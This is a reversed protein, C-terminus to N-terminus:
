EDEGNTLTQALTLSRTMASGMSSQATNEIIGQLTDSWCVQHSKSAQEPVVCPIATSFDSPQIALTSPKQSLCLEEKSLFCSQCFPVTTERREIKRPLSEKEAESILNCSTAEVYHRGHRHHYREILIHQNPSTHYSDCGECHTRTTLLTISLAKWDLLQYIDRKIPPGGVLPTQGEAERVKQVARAITNRRKAMSGEAILDGLLDDKASATASATTTLTPNSSDQSM